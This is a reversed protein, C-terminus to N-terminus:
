QGAHAISGRLLLGIARHREKVIDLILTAMPRFRTLPRGGCRTLLRGAQWFPSGNQLQIPWLRAVSPVEACAGRQVTKQLPPNHIHGCRNTCFTVSTVLSSKTSKATNLSVQGGSPLRLERRYRATAVSVALGIGLTSFTSVVFSREAGDHGFWAFGLPLLMLLAFLVVIRGVLSVVALLPHSM